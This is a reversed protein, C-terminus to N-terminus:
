VQTHQQNLKQLQPTLHKATIKHPPNTTPTTTIQGTYGHGGTINATLYLPQTDTLLMAHITPHFPQPTTPAGAQNAITQAATDAQQTSIGGHKIPFDLADGAAYINQTDQVHGYPDVHIFGHESLPIGHITPGYLEPLAIIRKTHLHRDGPNITIETPTPIEAYASCITNINAQALRQSITNSVTQGFIALPSPEPTIITSTLKINMDYARGATMLALEYIPLQWPIRPPSVFAIDDLYGGEIDQILGHLTQDMHQDDITIAHEYRAIPRAGLALLLADYEIREGTKTLITNTNAQIHDLEGTILTAATDKLIATLPYRAAPPYAFPERVSMPRYVLEKNPALVTIDVLGHALSELALVGEM